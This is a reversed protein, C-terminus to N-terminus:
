SLLIELLYRHFWVGERIINETQSVQFGFKEFLARSFESAETYLRSIQHLQAYEIVTELLRSGIGQRNYNSHVYLSAIHGNEEVGSFGVIMGDLEAVFTTPHFIFDNFAETDSPFYAWAEVQEPSYRQPAIAKVSDRYVTALAPIDLVTAARIKM